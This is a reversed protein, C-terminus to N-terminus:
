ETTQRYKARGQTSSIITAITVIAHPPSPARGVGDADSVVAGPTRDGVETDRGVEVGVGGAIARVARGAAVATRSIGVTLGVLVAPACDGPMRGTTATVGVGVIASGPEVAGVGFGPGVGAAVAVISDVGDAGIVGVTVGVTAVTVIADVGDAGIVGVTVGVTAVTVIADVGDAGIVGVTVGVSAGADTGTAVAIMLGVEVVVGAGNGLGSGLVGVGLKTGIGSGVGEPGSSLNPTM